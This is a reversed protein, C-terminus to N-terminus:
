QGPADSSPSAARGGATRWASVRPASTETASVGSPMICTAIGSRARGSAAGRAIMQQSKPAIFEAVCLGALAVLLAPRLAMWLIRLVSVGATRIVVLESTNALSGLGALCGILISFPLLQAVHSPLSLLTYYAAPGLTYRGSLDGSQDLVGVILDFGLLVALVLLIAAFVQMAVYRTILRM